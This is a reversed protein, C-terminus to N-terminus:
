PTPQSNMRWTTTRKRWNDSELQTTLFVQVYKLKHDGPFMIGFSMGKSLSVDVASYMYLCTCAVENGTLMSWMM